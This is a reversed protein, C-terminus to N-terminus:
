PRRSALGIDGPGVDWVVHATSAGVISADTSSTGGAVGFRERSRARRPVTRYTEYSRTEDSPIVYHANDAINESSLSARVRM